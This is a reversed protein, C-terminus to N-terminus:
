AYTQQLTQADYGLLWGHYLGQDNAYSGFAMYVIGNSLLLGPRNM